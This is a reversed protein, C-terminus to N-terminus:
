GVVLLNSAFLVINSIGKQDILVNKCDSQPLNAIWFNGDAVRSSSPNAMLLRCTLGENSGMFKM